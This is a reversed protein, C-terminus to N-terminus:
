SAAFVFRNTYNKSTSTNAATRCYVGNLGATTGVDYGGVSYCTVHNVSNATIMVYVIDCLYKSDTSSSSVSNPVELWGDILKEYVGWGGASISSQSSLELLKGDKYLDLKGSNIYGVDNYGNNYNAPEISYCLNEGVGKLGDTWQLRAGFLNEIGRYQIDGTSVVGTHYSMADTIGNESFTSGESKLAAQSNKTAFEVTFLIKCASWAAIDLSQWGSGRSKARERAGALVTFDIPTTGTKSGPTDGVNDVYRAIYKDSGPHKILGSKAKDSVYYYRKSNMEDDVIKSYFTPIYVFTDSSRNFNADGKKYSVAGNVINYEEMGAWPMYADFPSSGSGTGVAPSPESNVTSTVYGNPDADSTLRTLKPSENSYDWVVGFCAITVISIPQSASVMKIGWQFNVTISSTESSLPGSPTFTLNSLNVYLSQGNSYNAYVTMGTPDFEDGEYYYTKYPPNVITISELQVGGIGTPIARIRDPFTSAVIEATTGDKERIADAIGNFLDTLAM